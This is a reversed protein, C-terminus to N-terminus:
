KLVKGDAIERKEGNIVVPKDWAWLDEVLAKDEPKSADLKTYEYSDWDPAVDFAPAYEQGRVLFAGIIGNNNNEGYVVMCGFMYKVSGTLRNFFGGVLNNSMFTLTLEDNYKYAVKWLSYEEPDYHQWFWPLAVERTEENSYTRKWEDLAMKASGLAAIPHAVKKEKPPEDIPEEAKPKPAAAKPEAKPKAEKKPPVFKIAQDIPTTNKVFSKFPEQAVITTYWRAIAPHATAWAKDWVTGYAKDVLSAVFFDAVTPREGVLYTNNVLQAEIPAAFKNSNELATDVNKKNYPILGVLPMIAGVVVANLLDSNALSLWKLVEAEEVPSAGFLKNPKLTTLYKVIAITETLAFKGDASLFAPVKKLPFNAEFAADPEAAKVDLNLAKIVCLAAVERGYNRHYITGQSM